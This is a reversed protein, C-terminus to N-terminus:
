ILKVRLYQYCDTNLTILLHYPALERCTNFHSKCWALVGWINSLVVKCCCMITKDDAVSEVVNKNSQSRFSYDTNIPFAIINM